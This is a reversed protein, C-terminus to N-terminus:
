FRSRVERAKRRSAPDTEGINANGGKSREPGLERAAKVPINHRRVARREDSYIHEGLERAVAVDAPVQTAYGAQAAGGYSRSRIGGRDAQGTVPAAEVLSPLIRGPPISPSIVDAPPKAAVGKFASIAIRNAKEDGGAPAPKAHAWGLKASGTNPRKAQRYEVIFPPTLRKL